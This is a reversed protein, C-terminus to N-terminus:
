TVAEGRLALTVRMAGQGDILARARESTRRRLDVDDLLSELAAALEADSVAKSWGLSLAADARALGATIGAQNDSLTLLVAPLGMFCLEWCTSGGGSVAIDAWAMLGPVDAPDRHVEFRASASRRALSRLVDVRPDGAGIVVAVILRRADPLADIVGMARSTQLDPDSGGMMLLIRRAEHVIERRWGRWPEFRRRLLAYRPGFLTRTAPGHAYRLEEAFINQNLIVDADYAPAHAIDDIVLVRGGASRLACTYSLGFHYGDCSVWSGLHEGLLGLMTELDGRAPHKEALRVVAVSGDAFDAPLPSPCVTLIVATGGQEQWGQALALSRILHGYGIEGNADARLLLLPGRVGELRM